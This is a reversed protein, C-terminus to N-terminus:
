RLSTKLVQIEDVWVIGSGEVVLNLRVNTPNQDPQLLFRTECSTWEATGGIPSDLGRSFYDGQEEFSCWMELYAQGDLDASRLKARYVLTANDVDLDGTEYLAVTASESALIKLSGGGDSTVELDLVVASPTVVGELDDVPFAALEEGPALQGQPQQACGAFLFAVAALAVVLRDRTCSM